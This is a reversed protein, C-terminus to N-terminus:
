PVMKGSPESWAGPGAAGIGRVRVWTRVGSPLGSLTMSSRTSTGRPAWGEAANPDTHSQAEYSNAGRLADWVADLEGDTDGATVRLDQPAGLAGIAAGTAEAVQFGAALLKAEDGATAGEVTSAQQQLAAVVADLKQDRATRKTKLVKELADIDDIATQAATIVAEFAPLAPAPHPVDANGTLGTLVAQAADM